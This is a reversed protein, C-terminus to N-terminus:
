PLDEEPIEGPRARVLRRAIAAPHGARLMAAYARERTARDPTESAFPGIGRRRAFRLASEWTRAAAVARAEELAEDEVGAAYLAAEIRRTGYGRRALATARATAFARDDVYGLMAMKAVLSAVDPSAVGAWGRERLKRALYAALKARTTAYRALYRLTIQELAAEDLPPPSRRAHRHTMAMNTGYDLRIIFAGRGNFSLSFSL